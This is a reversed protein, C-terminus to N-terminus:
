ERFVGPLGRTHLMVGQILCWTTMCRKGQVNTTKIPDALTGGLRGSLRLLMSEDVVFAIAETPCACKGAPPVWSRNSASTRRWAARLVARRTGARAVDREGDVHLSRCRQRLASRRQLDGAHMRGTWFATCRHGRRRCLEDAAPRACLRSALQRVVECPQRSAISETASSAMSCSTSSIAATAADPM